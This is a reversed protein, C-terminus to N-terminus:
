KSKDKAQGPPTKGGAPTKGSNGPNAPKGQDGIAPKDPKTPKDPKADPKGPLEGKKELGPPVRPKGGPKDAGFAADPDAAKGGANSWGPPSGLTDLWSGLGVGPKGADRTAGVLAGVAQGLDGGNSRQLRELAALVRPVDATQASRAVATALDLALGDPVGRLKLDTALLIVSEPALGHSAKAAPGFAALDVGSRLAQAGAVIAVDSPWGPEASWGGLLARSREMDQKITEIASVLRAQPVRKLTGERIKSELHEVPLELRRADELVGRLAPDDVAATAGQAWAAAPVWASVLLVALFWSRM